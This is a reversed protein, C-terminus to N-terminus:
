PLPLHKVVDALQKWAFQMFSNAQPSTLGAEIVWGVLVGVFINKWDVRPTRKSAEVLYDVQREVRASAEETLNATEILNRGIERVREEVLKQEAPTFPEHTADEDQIALLDRQAGAVAWLDVSEHDAKVMRLWRHAQALQDSFKRASGYHEGLDHEPWWRSWLTGSSEDFRFYSGTPLHHLVSILTKRDNSETRWQFETLNLGM